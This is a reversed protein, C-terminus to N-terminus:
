KDLMREIDALNIAIDDAGYQDFPNELQEQINDLSVLIITYITPILYNFNTAPGYFKSALLVFSPAYLIPFALLFFKGYARLGIPTRYYFITRMEEFAITFKTLFVVMRSVSRGHLGYTVLTKSAVSLEKIGDYVATELDRSHKQDSELFLKLAKFLVLIKAKIDATVAPDAEKPHDAAMRYFGLLFGRCEGLNILGRERRAYASNIAFVVPFIIAISVLAIPLDAHIQYKICVWTALISLFTVFITKFNTIYYIDRLIKM